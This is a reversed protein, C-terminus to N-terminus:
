CIIKYKEPIMTTKNLNQTFYKDFEEKNPIRNQWGKNESITEPSFNSEVLTKQNREYLKKYDILKLHVLLLQTDMITFSQDFNHMNHWYDITKKMFVPKRFYHNDWWWKRQMLIPKNKDIDPEGNFYDHIPEYGISRIVQHPWKIYKQAAQTLGDPHFLIEDCEAIFISHYKGLLHHCTKQVLQNITNFDHNYETNCVITNFLYQKRYNYVFNNTCNNEIVFIDEPAFINAYHKLFIPFFFEENHIYTLLCCTRKM